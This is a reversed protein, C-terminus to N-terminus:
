GPVRDQVYVSIRLHPSSQCRYSRCDVHMDGDVHGCTWEVSSRISGGMEVGMEGIVEINAM